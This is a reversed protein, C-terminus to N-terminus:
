SSRKVSHLLAIRIQTEDDDDDDDDVHYLVSTIVKWEGERRDASSPGSM